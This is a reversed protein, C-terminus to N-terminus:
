RMKAMSEQLRQHAERVQTDNMYQMTKMFTSPIQSAMQKVKEQIPKLEEPVKDMKKWEPHQAAIAKMQPALEEVKEAYANIADAVDSAGEAKDIDGIFSGMADVFKSNVEVADSYDPGKSCGLVTLLAAIAIVSFIRYRM